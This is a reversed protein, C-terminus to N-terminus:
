AEYGDDAVNDTDIVEETTEPETSEIEANYGYYFVIEDGEVIALAAYRAKPTDGNVLVQWFKDETETVGDISKIINYSGLTGTEYEAENVDLVQCVADYVTPTVEESAELSVTQQAYMDTDENKITVKVTIKSSDGSGNCSAFVCVIMMLALTLSIFRKM